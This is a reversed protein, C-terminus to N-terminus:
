RAAPEPLPEATKASRPPKDRPFQALVVVLIALICAAIWWLWDRDGTLPAKETASAESVQAQYLIKRLELNAGPAAQGPVPFSVASQEPRDGLPVFAAPLLAIAAGLAVVSARLWRRRKVAARRNWRIFLAALRHRLSSGPKSEDRTGEDPGSESPPLWALFYTSCVISLGLFLAPIVGRAPLPREAVSFAVGLVAAYIVGIASAAKQVFEASARARDISGKAVEMVGKFFELEIALDAEYEAAARAIIQDTRKKRVELQAEYLKKDSEGSGSPVPPWGLQDSAAFPRPQGSM